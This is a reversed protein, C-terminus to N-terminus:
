EWGSTPRRPEPGDKVLDLPVSAVAQVAVLDRGALVRLLLQWRGRGPDWGYGLAGYATSGSGMRFGGGPYLAGRPLPLALALEASLGFVARDISCYADAVRVGGSLCEPGDPTFDWAYGTDRPETFHVDFLTRLVVTRATLAGGVGVSVGKESDVVGMGLQASLAYKRAPPNQSTAPFPLFLGAALLALSSSLTGRRCAGDPGSRRTTFVLAALVGVIWRKRFCRAVREGVAGLRRRNM